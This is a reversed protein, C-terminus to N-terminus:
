ERGSDEWLDAFAYQAKLQSGPVLYPALQQWVDDKSGPIEKLLRRADAIDLDDRWASLKMALLQSLAPTRVVVGAQAFVIPGKTIGVLYGKVADNLWDENWNRDFAVSKAFRHVVSNDEPALIVIDLDQTSEREGFLLVMAGGGVLLLEIKIGERVALQSLQDLAQVIEQQSIKAMGV